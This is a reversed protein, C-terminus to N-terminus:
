WGALNPPWLTQPLQSIFMNAFVVVKGCIRSGRSQIYGSVEAMMIKELACTKDHVVRTEFLLNM